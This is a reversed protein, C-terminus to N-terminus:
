WCWPSIPSFVVMTMASPLFSLCIQAALASQGLNSPQSKKGILYYTGREMDAGHGIYYIVVVPAAAAASHIITCLSALAPDLYYGPTRAVTTFGRDILADVVTQLSDPVRGLAPFESCDYSATGAALLARRGQNSSNASSM